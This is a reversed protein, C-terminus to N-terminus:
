LTHTEQYQIKQTQQNYDLTHMVQSIVALAGKCMRSDPM